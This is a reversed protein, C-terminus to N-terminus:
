QVIIVQLFGFDGPRGRGQGGGSLPIQRSEKEVMQEIAIIQLQIKM